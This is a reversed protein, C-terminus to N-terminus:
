APRALKRGDVMLSGWARESSDLEPDYPRRRVSTFGTRELAKEMTKYDYIFKHEGDQHFLYNIQEMRTKAWPPHWLRKSTAFFELPDNGAYARLGIEGDPVSISLVGGPQLVRWCERMFKEAADPYPVHELFHECYVIECSEDAFPLPERLDLCLDANPVLDVNIWGRKLKPGCGLHLKLPTDTQLEKSKQVGNAHMRAVRMESQFTRFAVSLSRNWVQPNLRALCLRIIFKPLGLM